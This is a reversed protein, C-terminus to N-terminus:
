FKQPKHGLVQMKLLCHRTFGHKYLSPQQHPCPSPTDAATHCCCLSWRPSSPPVKLCLLARFGPAVWFPERSSTHLSPLSHRTLAWLHLVCARQPHSQHFWTCALPSLDPATPSHTYQRAWEGSLQLPLWRLCSRLQFVGHAWGLPKGQLHLEEARGPHRPSIPLPRGVMPRPSVTPSFGATRPRSRQEGDWSTVEPM